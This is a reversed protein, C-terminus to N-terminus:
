RVEVGREGGGERGEGEGGKNIRLVAWDDM